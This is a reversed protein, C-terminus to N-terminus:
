YYLLKVLRTKMLRKELNDKSSLIFEEADKLRVQANHKDEKKM